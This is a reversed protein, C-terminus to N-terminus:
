KIRRGAVRDESEDVLCLGTLVCRQEGTIIGTRDKREGACGLGLPHMHISTGPKGRGGGRYDKV